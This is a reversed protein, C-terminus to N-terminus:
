ITSLLNIFIPIIHYKITEIKLIIHVIQNRVKIETNLGEKLFNDNKITDKTIKKFIIVITADCKLNRNHTKLEFNKSKNKKNHQCKYIKKFLFRKPISIQRFVIWNTLTEESFKNIWDQTLKSLDNNSDFVTRIVANFHECTKFDSILVVCSSDFKFIQSIDM